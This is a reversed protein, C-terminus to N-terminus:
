YRQAEMEEGAYQPVLDDESQPQVPVFLRTVPYFTSLFIVLYM